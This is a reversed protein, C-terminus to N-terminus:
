LPHTAAIEYASMAIKAKQMRTEADVGQLPEHLSAALSAPRRFHGELQDTQDNAACQHGCGVRERDDSTNQLILADILTLYM